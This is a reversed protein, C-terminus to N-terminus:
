LFDSGREYARLAKLTNDKVGQSIKLIQEALFMAAKLGTENPHIAKIGGKIEFIGNRSVPIVTGSVPEEQKFVRGITSTRFGRVDFAQQIGGESLWLNPEEAPGTIRSGKYFYGANLAKSDRGFNGPTAIVSQGLWWEEGNLALETLREETRTARDVLERTAIRVLVNSDNRRKYSDVEFSSTKLPDIFRRPETKVNPHRFAPEYDSRSSWGGDPRRIEADIIRLAESRLGLMKKVAEFLAIQLKKESTQYGGKKLALKGIRLNVSSQATTTALQADHSVGPRQKPDSATVENLGPAKTYGSEVLLDDLPGPNEHSVHLSHSM